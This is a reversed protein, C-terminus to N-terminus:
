LPAPPLCRTCCRREEADPALDMCEHRARPRPRLPAHHRSVVRPTAAIGVLPQGLPETKPPHPPAARPPDAPTARATPRPRAASRQPSAPDPPRLGRAIFAIVVKDTGKPVVISTLSLQFRM